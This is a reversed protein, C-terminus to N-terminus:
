FSKTCASGQVFNLNNNAKDLTTKLCEQYTRTSSTTITVPNTGLSANAAIMLANITIFSGDCPNQVLASGSVFGHLVNLKMTALQASLMYAMNTANANLLWTSLTSGKTPDFAKGTGDVLNLATLAALDSTTILAQGNKNSWFGLTLGGGAGLCVNGFTVSQGSGDCPLVTFQKSTATTAVWNGTLSAAEAVTYTGPLLNGFCTSGAADTYGVLSVPVSGFDSSTAGTLTMKWGSIPNEGSGQSGNTNTDYFKSACITAYPVNGFNLDTVDTTGLVLSYSGSSPGTQKWGDVTGETVSITTDQPFVLSWYGNADTYTDISGNGDSNSYSVTIKWNAIGAEGSDLSGSNNADCYKYGSIAVITPGGCGEGICPDDGPYKVKFNDTKTSNNDFTSVTSVWVKYEGGPNPTDDYGQNGNSAKILILWLQYCTSFEGATVNIPTENASGVSTGLLTGDPATVKVYYDGDPLGAAGAKAPGGDLYVDKKTNYINLDVGTCTSDTTFVAGPLPEAKLASVLSVFGAFLTFRATRHLSRPLRLLKTKM